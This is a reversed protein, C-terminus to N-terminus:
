DEFIEKVKIELDDYLSIKLPLNMEKKEKEELREWESESVIQYVNDLYYAGNENLRFVDVSEDKPNIIWYEKVGYKEYIFKKLTVDRKRTSPSLIEAIFDPAGEIYNEQIKAPDCVVLIDPIFKNQADFRVEAESLVECRKGRLYNGIIRVLRGQIRIHKINAPSMNYVVGDILEAKKYDVMAEMGTEEQQLQVRLLKNICVVYFDKKVWVFLAAGTPVAREQGHQPSRANCATLRCRM